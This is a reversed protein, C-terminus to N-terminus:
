WGLEKKLFDELTRNFFEYNDYNSNHSANPIEILPFGTNEAWMDTYRRVYGTKDKKGIYLLVPCKFSVEQYRKFDRYYQDAANLMDKKGLRILCEYFSRRSEETVTTTKTGLSCYLRYPYLRAIAAYHDTWFLESKKYYRSGFPTSDISVFASVIEPFFLAAAQAAYGGASQGAMVANSIGEAELINKMEGATHELSFDRYPRSEGHLPMDWTIVGYKAAFAETQRDFLTHDATLGHTFFLVKKRDFQTNDTNIWYFVKGRSSNIYKKEM